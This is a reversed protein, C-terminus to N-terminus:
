ARVTCCSTGRKTMITSRARMAGAKSVRHNRLGQLRRGIRVLMNGLAVRLPRPVRGTTRVQHSQEATERIEALRQHLIVDFVYENIVM